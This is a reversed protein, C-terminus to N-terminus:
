PRRRLSIAAALVGLDLAFGAACFICVAGIVFIEIFTLGLGVLAGVIAFVLIWTDVTWPGLATRGRLAALSLAFLILFGALGITATPVGAISAYVSRGVVRCDFWASFSCVSSSFSAYWEYALYAAVAAGAAALIAILLLRDGRSLRERAM